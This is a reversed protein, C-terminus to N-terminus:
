EDDDDEDCLEFVFSPNLIDGAYTIEPDSMIDQLTEVAKCLISYAIFPHINGLDIKPRVEDADICITIIQMAPVGKLEEV